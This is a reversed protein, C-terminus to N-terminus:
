VFGDDQRTNPEQCAAAATGVMSAKRVVQAAHGGINPCLHRPQRCAKAEDRRIVLCAQVPNM